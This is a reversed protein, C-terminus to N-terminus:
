QCPAQETAESQSKLAFFPWAQAKVVVFFFRIIKRKDELVLKSFERKIEADLETETMLGAGKQGPGTDLQYWLLYLM